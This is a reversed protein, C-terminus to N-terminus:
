KAVSMMLKIRNNQNTEDTGPAYDLAIINADPYRSKIENVFGKGTIHNPLCGFPQVCLVNNVGADLLEVIEGTLLWGEGTQHGLSIINKVKGKLEKFSLPPEFRKSLRFGLHLPLRFLEAITIDIKGSVASKWSGSIHNYNFIRDYFGYLMFDTFDPIVVEGGESKIIEATRSNADFPYMLLKEGVLGIRPKKKTEDIPAADFERIMKLINLNFKFINGDTINEKARESWKDALTRISGQEKEYPSLRNTMRMLADGYCEAMLFRLLAKKGITLGSSENGGVNLPLVPLQNLGCRALARRLLVAYNSARCGDCIQTILLVVKDAKYKGSTIAQLLQGIVVVAPFCVDNNVHKLGLEVADKDATPLVATKYGEAALVAEIFQFHLPAIRPILITHTKKMEETFVADQTDPKREEGNEFGNRKKLAAVLSRIRIKESGANAGEDIKIQAYLRGKASLIEEAQDTTIADPGCGFSVLQLFAFNDANAAFDAAQYLRATWQDRVRLTLSSHEADAVSDETLVAAGCANILEPVGHNVAPDVHYPRGALIVAPKGTENIERVAEIGKQRIDRRFLAQEEFGAKVAKKLEGLPIGSFLPVSKLREPLRTADLPLFPTFVPTGEVEPINKSLVEPYGSVVPCNFGDSQSKFEKQERPICPFFVADVGKEILDIIHGHALKAPYCITQSPVSSCGRFFMKKSSAGSLEVRFGLRTLVTFWLPYNEYMNLARPIGVTGRFADEAALPSYHDFLRKYKYAYLNINDNKPTGSGKECRNGSIYNKKGGFNTVTLACNDACQGCRVNTTKLRLNELEELSLLQTRIGNEPGREKAILAAGFAGSLESLPPRIVTKGIQLELARLLADNLFAGGQAVICDGLESVDNIKMVKHCANKIVSYSLGAAIDGISLGGKQAQKVKSNMFVTCRTGLDAPHKANLAAEVFADLDMNLSKAFNEIFSGCGASCAENLSIKEILGDKIKMCKIDQGGIDLVFSVNPAFFRAAQCHAVTEVEDIDAKLGAKVLAGGYGTAAAAKIDIKGRGLSRIEKLIRVAVSFPDGENLGYYSYILRGRADILAAKITTSGSDIGLWAEGEYDAGAFISSDFRRHREYFAQRDNENQFLPPLRRIDRDEGAHGLATVIESLPRKEGKGSIAYLAAGFAGFLEASKPFVANKDDLKLTDVFCRRLSKIFVLPGGLFVVRGKIERGRALGGIFQNAVAQMVSMAIDAKSCGENILPVIDTKAFVGCRSAIPYINKHMLALKDLEPTEVNLLSAMQDIFAGTGGACTENMRLDTGGTLYTLKADEGGLEVIVDADPIRNKISLGAAIVEQVFDFNLATCLSLAGSGTFAIKVNADPFVAQIDHFVSVIKERVESMHRQYTSFLIVGSEDTVVIKVTTSGIDTGIYLTKDVMTKGAKVM